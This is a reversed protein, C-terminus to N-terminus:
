HWYIIHPLTYFSLNLVYLVYWQKIVHAEDIAVACVMKSYVKNSLMRRWRETKLLAEPTGYVVSFKGEQLAKEEEDSEIESLSVASVGLDRLKKVQDRMLNILSSVVIVVHKGGFKEDFLKPLAQYILSKGAGTPLNVFVDKRENIISHIAKKQHVTFSEVKFINCIQQYHGEM